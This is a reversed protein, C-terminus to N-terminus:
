QMKPRNLSNPPPSSTPHMYTHLKLKPHCTSSIKSIVYASITQNSSADEADLSNFHKRKLGSGRVRENIEDPSFM